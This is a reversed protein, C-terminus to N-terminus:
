AQCGFPALMILVAVRTALIAGLHHFKSGLHHWCSGLLDLIPGLSPALMIVFLGEFVNIKNPALTKASSCADVYNLIAWCEKLMTQLVFMATLRSQFPRVQDYSPTLM